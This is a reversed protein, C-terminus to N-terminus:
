MTINLTKMFLENQQQLVKLTGELTEVKDRITKIGACATSLCYEFVQGDPADITRILRWSPNVVQGPLVRLKGVLGIPAWEPRSERPIYQLSPNFAPNLIPTKETIIEYGDPVVSTGDYVVRDTDDAINSVYQVPELIQNGFKDNRYKDKWYSWHADGVVSPMTSVIGFIDLPDDEPTSLRIYKGTLVVTKGRTDESPVKDWQFMEAYDAGTTVTGGLTYTRGNGQVRFVNGSGAGTCVIHNYSGFSTSRASETRLIDSTYGTNTSVIQATCTTATPNRFNWGQNSVNGLDAGSGLNVFSLIAATGSLTIATDNTTIINGLLTIANASVNGGANVRFVDSGSANLGGSTCRIHSFTGTSPTLTETFLMSGTFATSGQIIRAGLAGATNSTLTTGGFYNLNAIEIQTSLGPVTQTFIYGLSGAATGFRMQSTAGTGALGMSFVSNDTTNGTSSLFIMNNANVGTSLYVSSMVGNSAVVNGLVNVQGSAAVNGGLFTVNAINAFLGTINGLFHNAVVNGLVNVQGSVAINGGLFRVNAVNGVSGTVNGFFHRATANGAGDIVFSLTTGNSNQCRFFNFASSPTRGAQLTLMTSAFAGNIAQFNAVDAGIALVNSHITGSNAASFRYALNTPDRVNFTGTTDVSGNGWVAFPALTSGTGNLNDCEIFTLNALDVGSTPTSLLQLMTSTYTVNTSILNMLHANSDFRLVSQNGIFANAVVNGFVNVQGSVAVNGGDFRVNAINGFTAIINSVNAFSGILNGNIDAAIVGPLAAAIGTLQSGNGIFFPSVVNGLVNVQGSIAVNGGDFRVNAINGFTGIINSVNAFSGTLNGNIDAAIVGPLAAAIGTLQSGNGIFFPSVVNGLVNVQGSVAVNGGVFRVNAINGFSAIINSVNAFSGILNGNLIDLNAVGPLTSTIGTLQSGNGFYYSATVNGDRSFRVNAINGFTAIINSVNAYSGTINGNLIDLNATGPLTSTVGTLQSGNGFYFKALVNGDQAFLVNGINGAAAIIGSVNAYSGIINGNRIDLNAVGPLTSTVGTLQSGNGFYYSATVNGDRAFRVNAINGFTAIINSVNAYSGTINGNLIDLNAVGPLTSTVGTLQSGNGFYYSATVNGDRAFRVNAINGFTAIINSVNAYRGQSIAM